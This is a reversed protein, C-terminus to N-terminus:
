EEDKFTDWYMEASPEKGWDFELSEDGDEISARFDIVESFDGSNKSLWDDLSERTIKGDKDRTNEVDYDSLEKRMSVVCTSMWLFGLIDVVSKRVVYRM